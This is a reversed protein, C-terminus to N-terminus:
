NNSTFFNSTTCLIPSTRVYNVCYFLTTNFCIVIRLNSFYFFILNLYINQSDITRLFYDIDIYQEEKQPFSSDVKPLRLMLQVSSEKTKELLKLPDADQIKQMFAQQAHLEAGTRGEAHVGLYSQQYELLYQDLQQMTQKDQEARQRSAALFQDAQQKKKEALDLVLKLRKSRKKM